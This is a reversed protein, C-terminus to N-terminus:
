RILAFSDFFAVSEPDSFSLEGAGTRIVEYITRGDLYMRELLTGGQGNSTVSASFERGPRGDLTIERSGTLSGNLSAITQDEAGKLGAAPDIASGDPYTGRATAISTTGLDVRVIKLEFNGGDPLPESQTQETPQRPFTARYDGEPATYVVSAAAAATSPPAATAPVASGKSTTAADAGGCAALGILAALPLALRALPLRTGSM